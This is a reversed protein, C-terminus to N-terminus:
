HVSLFFLVYTLILLLLLFWVTRDTFGRLGQRAAWRRGNTFLSRLMGCEMWKSKSFFDLFLLSGASDIVSTPAHLDQIFELIESGAEFLPSLFWIGLSTCTYYLLYSWSFPAYRAVYRPSASPALTWIRAASILTPNPTV